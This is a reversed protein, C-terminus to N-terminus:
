VPASVMEVFKHFNSTSGGDPEFAEVVRAQLDRARARMRVGEEGALLSAVAKGFCWRRAVDRANMQQDGFFPRCAMPMGGSIGEVVSGWGSHTVFAGVSPHRLVAAQPAWPVLLRGSNTTAKARDPFGQPLLPWADERLSWLFPARRRPRPTAPSGTSAAPPAAAAGPLLHYPGIAIPLCNPLAAALAATLDPPLLRPFANLAVATATRRLRRAVRRFLLGMVSRMDGSSATASAGLYPLDRVRYSGLGPHSTLLEDCIM